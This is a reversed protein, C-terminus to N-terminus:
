KVTTGGPTKAFNWTFNLMFYRRLTTYSNETVVNSGIFRNFGKNQDLLDNGRISILGKDNKFIKKGIYANWVIVNNNRDFTSTKQRLEANLETNLEFRWPLNYNFNFSHNQTFYKTQVERRISSKSTNYAVNTNLYFNYKKEVYKSFGFRIGYSENDTVNNIKNVINNNRNM